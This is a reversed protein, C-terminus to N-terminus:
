SATFTVYIEFDEETGSTNATVIDFFNPENNLCNAVIDYSYGPIKVTASMFKVRAGLNHTIRFQGIPFGPVDPATLGPLETELVTGNAAIRACYIGLNNRAEAKNGLGALNESKKLSQDTASKAENAVQLANGATNNADNAANVANGADTAASSAAAQATSADSAAQTAAAQATSADGAAQAAAAQATSAANTAQTAASAADGADSAAQTAALQASNATNVAQDSKNNATNATNNATNATSEATNATEVAATSQQRAQLAIDSIALVDVVVPRQDTIDAASNITAIKLLHHYEGQPDNFGALEGMSTKFAIRNEVGTATVQQYVEAFVNVPFTAGPDLTTEPLDFQLGDIVLTGGSIVFGTGNHIVLGADNLFTGPGYAKRLADRTNLENDKQRQTFDVQWSQAPIDVGAVAALGKINLAFGKSLVNGTGGGSTKYKDQLPEYGVAILVNHTSNYLGLWNFQFNGVDSNLLTNFIVSDDSLSGARTIDAPYEVQAPMGETKLPTADPDLGPVNAFLIQDALMGGNLSKAGAAVESLFQEGATTMTQGM